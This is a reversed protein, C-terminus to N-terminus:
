SMQNRFRTSNPRVFKRQKPVGIKEHQFDLPSHTQWFEDEKEPTDFMPANPLKEVM